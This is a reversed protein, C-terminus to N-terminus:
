APLKPEMQNVPGGDDVALDKGAKFTAAMEDLVVVFVRLAARWTVPILPIAAIGILIPRALTYATLFRQARDAPSQPMATPATLESLDYQDINANIFEFSLEDKEGHHQQGTSM